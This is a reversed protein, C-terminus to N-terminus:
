FNMSFGIYKTDGSEQVVGPKVARVDYLHADVFADLAAILWVAGSWWMYDRASEKHYQYWADEERWEFTDPDLADRRKLSRQADKQEFWASSLYYGFTGVAIITKIRRGNYLQGLGPLLMSSVLAVTPSKHREWEREGPVEAQGIRAMERKISEKSDSGSSGRSTDPAAAGGPGFAFAAPSRAVAGAALAVVLVLHALKM